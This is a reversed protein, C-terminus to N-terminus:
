ECESPDVAATGVDASDDILLGNEILDVDGDTYEVLVDVAGNMADSNVHITVLMQDYLAQTKCITVEGFATINSIAGWDVINESRISTIFTDDPGATNPVLYYVGAHDETDLTDETSTSATDEDMGGSDYEEHSQADRKHEDMMDCAFLCPIIGFFKYMGIEKYQM